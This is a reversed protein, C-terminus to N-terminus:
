PPEPGEPDGDLWLKHLEAATPAVDVWDVWADEDDGGGETWIKLVGDEPDVMLVGYPLLSGLEITHWEGQSWYELTGDTANWRVQLDHDHEFDGGDEWASGGLDNLFQRANASFEDSYQQVM